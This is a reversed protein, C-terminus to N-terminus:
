DKVRLEFRLLELLDYIEALQCHSADESSFCHVENKVEIWSCGVSKKVGKDRMLRRIKQVDIWRGALGHINSLMVYGALNREALELLKRATREAIEDNKYKNCASLLAAWANSEPEFPMSKIFDEAESLRGSRSLM